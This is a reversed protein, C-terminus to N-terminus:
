TWEQSFPLDDLVDPMRATQQLPLRAINEQFGLFISFLMDPDPQFLMALLSLEPCAVLIARLPLPTNRLYVQSVARIVAEGIGLIEQCRQQRRLLDNGNFASM